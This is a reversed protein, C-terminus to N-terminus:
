LSGRFEGAAIGRKENRSRLLGEGNTSGQHPSLGGPEGEARWLSEGNGGIHEAVHGSLAALKADDAQRQRLPDAELFRGSMRPTGSGRTGGASSAGGLSFGKSAVPEDYLM